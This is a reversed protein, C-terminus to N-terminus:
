DNKSSYIRLHTREVITSYEMDFYNNNIEPYKSPSIIVLNSCITSLQYLLNNFHSKDCLHISYSCIITDFKDDIGKKSIYEFSMKLCDKNLNKRYINDFYPDCGKFRNYGNSQLYKSVEGNGCGLDLFYGIDIKESTIDLCKEIKDIHPNTYKEKESKYYNSPSGFKQYNNRVSENVNGCKHCTYPDDGGDSLDWSWGCKSCIVKESSFFFYEKIYKM